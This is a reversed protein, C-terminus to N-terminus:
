ATRGRPARRSRTISAHAIVVRRCVMAPDRVGFPKRRQVGDREFQEIPQRALELNCADLSVREVRLQLLEAHPTRGNPEFRRVSCSREDHHERAKRTKADPESAPPRCRKGHAAAVATGFRGVVLCRPEFGQDAVDDPAPEALAQDLLRAARAEDLPLVPGIVRDDAMSM